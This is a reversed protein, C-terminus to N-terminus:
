SPPRVQPLIQHTILGSSRCTQLSQLTPSNLMKDSLLGSKAPEITISSGVTCSSQYPPLSDRSINATPKFGRSETNSCSSQPMLWAIGPLLGTGMHRLLRQQCPCDMSCSWMKGSNSLTEPTIPYPTSTPSSMTSTLQTEALYTSGNLKPSSLSQDTATLCCPGLGNSM